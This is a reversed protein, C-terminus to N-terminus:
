NNNHNQQQSYLPKQWVSIQALKLYFMILLPKIRFYFTPMSPLFTALNANYGFHNYCFSPGLNHNYLRVLSHMLNIKIKEKYEHEVVSIIM